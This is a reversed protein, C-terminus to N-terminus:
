ICFQTESDSEWPLCDLVGELKLLVNKCCAEVITLPMDMYGLAMYKFHHGM